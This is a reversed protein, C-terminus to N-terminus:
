SSTPSASPTPLDLTACEDDAKSLKTKLEPLKALRETRREIVRDLRNVVRKNGNAEAKAQRAKLWALSGKTDADGSIRTRAKDVRQILTPVRNCFTTVRQELVGGSPLTISASTSAATSAGAMHAGTLALGAALGTASLATIIGM